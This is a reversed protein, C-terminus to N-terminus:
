KIAEMRFDRVLKQHTQPDEENISNFGAMQLATAFSEPWWGWKHSMLPNKYEAEGYFAWLGLRIAVDPNKTTIAQLFNIAGKRIDPMEVVLKGGPKLVRRWDKLIDVVEWVYFHECLHYAHIEDAYNDPYELKTVDMVVDTGNKKIADINIFGEMPHQGCGLNLKIM